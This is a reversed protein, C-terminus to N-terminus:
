MNWVSLQIICVLTAIQAPTRKDNKCLVPSICFCSNPVYILSSRTKFIQNQMVSFAYQKLHLLLQQFTLFMLATIYKGCYTICCIKFYICIWRWWCHRYVRSPWSSKIAHIRTMRQRRIIRREGTSKRCLPDTICINQSEKATLSLLIKFM